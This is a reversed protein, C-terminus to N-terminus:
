RLIGAEIWRTHRDRLEEIILSEIEVEGHGPMKEGDREELRLWTEKFEWENDGETGAALPPTEVGSMAKGRGKQPTPAAGGDVDVTASGSGRVATREVFVVEHKRRHLDNGIVLQHGYRSLAARSKPILLNPDTELKFSVIYGEPTWEQVLPRLVKPVQDM